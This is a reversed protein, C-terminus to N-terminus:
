YLALTLKLYLLNKNTVSMYTLQHACGAFKTIFRIVTWKFTDQQTSMNNIEKNIALSPLVYQTVLYISNLINMKSVHCYFKM